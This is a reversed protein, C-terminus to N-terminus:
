SLGCLHYWSLIVCYLLLYIFFLFDQFIIYFFNFLDEKLFGLFLSEHLSSITRKVALFYSKGALVHTLCKFSLSKSVWEFLNSKKLSFYNWNRNVWKGNQCFNERKLRNIVRQKKWELKSKFWHCVCKSVNHLFCIEPFIRSNM